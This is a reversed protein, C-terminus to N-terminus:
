AYNYFNLITWELGSAGAWGLVTAADGTALIVQQEGDIFADTNASGTVRVPGTGINKITYTIGDLDTNLIPLTGTDHVSANFIVVRDHSSLNYDATKYIYKTRLGGSLHTTGQITAGETHVHSGTIGHSASFEGLLASITANRTPTTVLIEGAKVTTTCVPNGFFRRAQSYSGTESIKTYGGSGTITAGETHVHSGTIGHSASIEGSLLELNGAHLVLAPSSATVTILGPTIDVVGKSGSTYSGSESIITYGVAGSPAAYTTTGSDVDFSGTIGISSASISLPSGGIITTATLTGITATTSEVHSGTVGKSASLEGAVSLQSGNFTLNTAGQVTKSTATGVLIRNLAENNYTDIAPATGATM